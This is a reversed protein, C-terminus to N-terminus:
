IVPSNNASVKNIVKKGLFGGIFVWMALEIIIAAYYIPGLAALMSLGDYPLGYVAIYAVQSLLNSCFWITFLFWALRTIKDSQTRLAKSGM